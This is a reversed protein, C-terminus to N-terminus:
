RSLRLRLWALPSLLLTVVCAPVNPVGVEQQFDLLVLALETLRSWWAGYSSREVTSEFLAQMRLPPRVEVRLQAVSHGSNGFWHPTGKPVVLTEGPQALITHKGIRFRMSGNIVRFREEQRPHVHRAPVHGGPQLFLDFELVDGDGSSPDSIVIREGTRPNDIIRPM